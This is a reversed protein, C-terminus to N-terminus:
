SCGGRPWAQLRDVQRAALHVRGALRGSTSPRNVPRLDIADNRRVIASAALSAEALQVDNREASASGLHAFARELDLLHGHERSSHTARKGIHWLDAKTSLSGRRTVRVLLGQRHVCIVRSVVSSTSAVRRRPDAHRQPLLGAVQQDGPALDDVDEVAPDLRGVHHDGVAPDGAHAAVVHRALRVIEAAPSTIKGPSISVCMCRSLVSKVGASSARSITGIPVVATIESECSTPLTSPTGPISM